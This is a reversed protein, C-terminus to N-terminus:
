HTRQAGTFATESRCLSNADLVACGRTLRAVGPLRLASACPTVNFLRAIKASLDADDIHGKLLPDLLPQIPSAVQVCPPHLVGGGWGVGGWGVCVCVCWRSVERKVFPLSTAYFSPPSRVRAVFTVRWESDSVM